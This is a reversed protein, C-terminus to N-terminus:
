PSNIFENENDTINLILIYYFNLQVRAMSKIKDWGVGAMSKVKDLTVGAMRKVKDWTLGVMSNVKNRKVRIVGVAARSCKIKDIEDKSEFWLHKKIYIENQGSWMAHDQLPTACLSFVNWGTEDHKM